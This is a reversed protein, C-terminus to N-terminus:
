WGLRLEIRAGHEPDAAVEKREAELGIALDPGFAFRTGLRYRRAGGDEYGFGAYPTASGVWARFGYGLEAELRAGGTGGSAAMGEDWLRALGSESAGWRPSLSLSLGRGGPSLRASAAAGWEEVDGEHAALARGRAEVALSDSAWSLGGGVEVGLGTEGDGGDWRAGVELSPALTGGGPLAYTRTGEAALRLRQTKASVAAIASGNDKVSYRTAEGAAKLALALGDASLVPVAGGAAVGLFASDGKQVGFREAVEADTIEIEGEGYGLAGWLRSGDPGSWGLYPHAAAMRSDHVGAIAAEGSRDVYKIASEFWSAALGGRLGGGLPADVGAHAAFLDGSWDLAEKDLSLRRREGSGWAAAPSGGAPSGVGLGLVFSEGALLDKWSAAGEELARENSRLMSAAGALGSALVGGGPGPSELRRTVADVASGWMARSLEPLISENIAKLRARAEKLNSEVTITIELETPDGDIDTATWAYPTEEMEETPTGSLRRLEPGDRKLGPPPKEPSLAYTITGDGGTAEPLEVPEIAEGVTFECRLLEDEYRCQSTETVRGLVPETDKYGVAFPSFSMVGPACVHTGEENPSSGGVEAWVNNDYRLLRTKRHDASGDRGAAARRLGDRVPLCVELGPSPVPGAASIDVVTRAEESLELGDFGDGKAEKAAPVEPSFTLTLPENQQWERMAALDLEIGAPVGAEAKVTVTGGGIRYTTEGPIEVMVTTDAYGVAFPSFSMVGPACVHTGTPSSGGVEAWVNGDYRLLLLNRDASADRLGAAADRLGDSVPLCIKLGPSPVTGTVSIDVVRRADGLSEALGGFGNLAAEALTAAPVEPSFTLALPSGSGVGEFDVEIGDPVAGEVTVEVQRGEIAYTMTGPAVEVVTEGTVSVPLEGRVDYYDGGSAGHALALPAAYGGENAEVTVTVVQATDWASAPFTLAAPRVQVDENRSEPSATVAVTVAGAPMSTLKVTYTKDIGATVKVVTASTGAVAFALGKEDDDAITLDAGTVAGVGMGNEATGSIRVTKNAADVRNDNGTVTVLGASSISRAAITLTTATSLTFDDVAAPSVPAATVTVTTPQVSPHSLAATVTSIGGNELISAPDLALTVTPPGDDDTTTVDVDVDDLSDYNVDGSSADLRVQWDVDGDDVDDDAGTVTVTRATEWNQVTFVLSSPAIRGETADLSTVSVTVAQSPQTNLRVTFTAQGGGETAQGSVASESLGFEDDRLILTASSPNSVGRGGAATASVTVQKNGTAQANDIATVTVVGTSTTANAAITLTTTSSLSFDAAVAGAGAAAAVTLTAAQTTPHSLRATVTSIGGNESIASPNLVLTATADDDNTLTLADPAPNAIGNGGATTGSIRLLKNAADVNNDVGTVTVLGTSTTSGAAITLTNATSLAFDGAVAGSSALPTVMVTVTTAESSKGSLGSLGATVTAIGGNESISGPSLVLSVVPLTEDDTITLAAGTVAGAGQGNTLTGTVTASRGANGHHLDDNVATILATDSAATTSGAAIVITADTGATYAGSVATVTVTSPQSSPHSLTASVTSVGSPEAISAPNLSLTAGPAADDDRVTLAAGTVAMTTSDATARANTISATVTETRDPADTDNDVAVITATDSAATTAEAPIVIAADTGAAYFGSVGTVTVTTAAGSAHSLRATVTAVNGTGSEAISAPNLTLTVGPPGDDDTTTVGVDVNGLGNYGTDGSSPDLRVQWTVDGDDVTDQVGTVTVAQATSWNTSSFTLSSPAVTGESADRSSVSVTVAATPAARLRVPFTSQGGAETAQGSVAGTWLGKTNDTQVPITYTVTRARVFYASASVTITLVWDSSFNGSYSLTVRAAEGVGTITHNAVNSISLNVGSPVGSFTFWSNRNTNLQSTTRHRPSDGDVALFVQANNLSSKYLIPPNPSHIWERAAAPQAAAVFLFVLWVLWM